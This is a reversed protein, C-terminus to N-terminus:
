RILETLKALIGKFNIKDFYIHSLTPIYTITEQIPQLDENGKMELFIKKRFMKFYFNSLKRKTHSHCCIPGFGNKQLVLQTESWLQVKIEIPARWADQVDIDFVYDDRKINKDSKPTETIVKGLLEWHQSARKGFTRM